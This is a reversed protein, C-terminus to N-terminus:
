SVDITTYDQLRLVDDLDIGDRFWPANVIREAVQVDMRAIIGIMSLASDEYHHRRGDLVWELQIVDNALREDAELLTALGRVASAETGRDSPGSAIWPLTLVDLGYAPDLELIRRLQVALRLERDILGDTMWDISPTSRGADNVTVFVEALTELLLREQNTIDDVVWSYRGVQGVDDPAHLAIRAVAEIAKREWFVVGDRVWSYDVIEDTLRQDVAAIEYLGNLATAEGHEIGDAVWTAKALSLGLERNLQWIKVIAALAASRIKDPPGSFWPLVERLEGKLTDPILPESMAYGAGSVFPGGHLERYVARVSEKRDNPTNRLVIEYITEESLRRETERGTTYIEGLAIGIADDGMAMRLSHLFHEGFVYNCSQRVGTDQQYDIIDQISRLGPDLNCGERVSRRVVLAPFRGLDRIGFQALGITAIFNAGGEVLWTNGLGGYMYHHATEHFVTHPHVENNPEDRDVVVHSGFNYAADLAHGVVLLAVFDRDPFPVKMFDEATWIANAFHDLLRDQPDIPRNSFMWVNVQQGGLPADITKSKVYHMEMLEDYLEPWRRIAVPLISLFAADQRSLGDAFWPKSALVNFRQLSQGRIASLSRLSNAVLRPSWLSSSDVIGAVVDTDVRGLGTLARLVRNEDLTIGGAFWGLSSVRRALELDNNALDLLSWLARRGNKDVGDAFWTLRAVTKALRSDRHAIRSLARLPDQQSGTAGERVWPLMAVTHGLEIDLLWIEVVIEAVERHQDDPPSRFWPIIESLQTAATEEPTPTNTPTPTPTPTPSPTPTNTPTPTLTPTPSPTSTNTPTPTLTPTPSPTSTNTPTPTLTPTPSPTSTNTPTPTLTPTPSPPSTNTPTPTLTPTPSPTPTHTPPASLPATPALARNPAASSPEVTLTPSPAPSTPGPAITTSAIRPDSMPTPTSALPPASEGCAFLLVIVGALPYKGLGTPSPLRM